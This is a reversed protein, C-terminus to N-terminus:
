ALTKIGTGPAKGHQVPHSCQRQRPEPGFQRLMARRRDITRSRARHRAKGRQAKRLNHCEMGSSRLMARECRTRQPFKHQLRGIPPM